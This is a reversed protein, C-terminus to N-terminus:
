ARKMEESQGEREQPRRVKKLYGRISVSGSEEVFVKSSM